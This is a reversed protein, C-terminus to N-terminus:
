DNNEKPWDILEAKAYAVMAAVLWILRIPVDVETLEMVSGVIMIVLLTAGFIACADRLLTYFWM